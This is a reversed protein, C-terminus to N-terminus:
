LSWRALPNVLDEIVEPAYQGDAHLLVVIDLGHEIATKYAAKQNGGYGLNQPRRVVTLPLSTESQYEKGISYTSDSSADDCVLVESVRARFTEPIRDLVAALTSAANYAVVVIGIRQESM